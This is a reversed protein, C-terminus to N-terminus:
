LLGRKESLNSNNIINIVDDKSTYWFHIWYDGEKVSVIAVYNFNM